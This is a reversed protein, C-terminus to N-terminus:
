KVLIKNNGSKLDADIVNKCSTNPYMVTNKRKVEFIEKTKLFNDKYSGFSEVYLCGGNEDIYEIKQSPVAISACGTLFVFPIVFKKNM